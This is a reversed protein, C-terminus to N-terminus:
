QVASVGEVSRIRLCERVLREDGRELDGVNSRKLVKKDVGDEKLCELAFHVLLARAEENILDKPSVHRGGSQLIDLLLQAVPEDRCMVEELRSGKASETSPRTAAPGDDLLVEDAVQRRGDGESLGRRAFM